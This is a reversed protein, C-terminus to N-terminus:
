LGDVDDKGWYVNANEVASKYESIASKLKKTSMGKERNAISNVSKTAKTITNVMAEGVADGAGAGAVLGNFLGDLDGDSVGIIGGAASGVVAGLSETTGSIINKIGEQRSKKIEAAKDEYQRLANKMRRRAADSMDGSSAMGAGGGVGANGADQSAGVGTPSGARYAESGGGTKGIYKLKGDKDRTFGNDAMDEDLRKKAKANDQRSKAIAGIGGTVKGANNLVRKGLNLAFATKALSKMASGPAARNEKFGFIQKAFGEVKFVSLLAFTSMLGLAANKDHSSADSVNSMDMGYLIISIVIAYIFAQITQTFVLSTFESFWVSLAGGKGKM